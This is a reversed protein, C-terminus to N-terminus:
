FAVSNSSYIRGPTVRSPPWYEPQIQNISLSCTCSWPNGHPRVTQGPASADFLLACHSLKAFSQRFWIHTSSPGQSYGALLNLRSVGPGPVGPGMKLEDEVGMRDGWLSLPCCYRRSGMGKKPRWPLSELPGVETRGFPSGGHDQVMLKLLQFNGPYHGGPRTGGFGGVVGVAGLLKERERARGHCIAAPPRQGQDVTGM